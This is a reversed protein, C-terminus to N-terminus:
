FSRIAVYTFNGDQVRSYPWDNYQGLIEMYCGVYTSNVNQTSSIYHGWAYKNSSNLKNRWYYTDGTSADNTYQNTLAGAVVAQKTFLYTQFLQLEKKSPVYWDNYIGIPTDNVYKFLYTSSTGQNAIIAATNNKGVLTGTNQAGVIANGNIAIKTWTGTVNARQNTEAAILGHQVNADYGNDGSQLIYYVIGGGYYDGVAIPPVYNNKVSNYQSTISTQDLATKQYKIRYIKGGLYNGAINYEQGVRLKDKWGANPSSLTGSGILVANKYVLVNAGNYVFDYWAIGTSFTGTPVVQAQTGVGLTGGWINAWVYDNAQRDDNFGDFFVNYHGGESSPGDVAMSITFVANRTNIGNIDIYSGSVMQFGGGYSAVYTPNGGITATVGNILETWLTGTSPPNLFDFEKVQPQSSYLSQYTALAVQSHLNAGVFLVLIIIYLKRM